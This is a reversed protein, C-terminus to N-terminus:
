QQGSVVTPYIQQQTYVQPQGPQVQVQGYMVQQQGYQVPMAQGPQMQQMPYAQVPQGVQQTTYVPQGQGYQVPKQQTTQSVVTVTAGGAPAAGVAAALRRRRRLCCCIISILTSVAFFPLGVVLLYFTWGVLFAAANAGNCSTSYYDWNSCYSSTPGSSTGSSCTSTSEVLWLVVACHM